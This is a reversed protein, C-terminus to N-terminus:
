GRAQNTNGENRPPRNGDLGAVLEATAKAFHREVFARKNPRGSRRVGRGRRKGALLTKKASYGQVEPADADRGMVWLELPLRTRQDWLCVIEYQSESSSGVKVPRDLPWLNLVWDDLETRDGFTM